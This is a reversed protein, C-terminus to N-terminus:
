ADYSATSPGSFKINMTQTVIGDNPIAHGLSTVVGKSAWTSRGTTATSGNDNFMIRFYLPDSTSDSHEEIARVASANATAYKLEISAEGPDKLGPDFESAESDFDTTEISDATENPGGIHTILGITTSAAFSTTTDAVLITGHGHADAM